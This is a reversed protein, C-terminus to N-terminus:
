LGRLMEDLYSMALRVGAAKSTLRDSERWQATLSSVKLEADAKVLRERLEAAFEAAGQEKMLRMVFETQTEDERKETAM